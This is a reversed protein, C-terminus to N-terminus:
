NLRLYEFLTNLITNFKNEKLSGVKYKILSKEISAIKDIRLYSDKKLNGQKFDERKIIIEASKEYSSGTIQMVIVDGGNPVKLVLVPRRKSEKLNTYPFEIVAIDGKVLGEM